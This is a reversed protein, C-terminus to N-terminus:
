NFEHDNFSKFMKYCKQNEKLIEADVVFGAKKFITFSAINEVKIYAIIKATKNQNLYAHTAKHLMEIGYSKGRFSKDISIGIIIEDQQKNIRVQGVPMNEENFFLYFFCGPDNLKSRFWVVHDNYKIEQQNFSNARVVGDNSWNFYLDVDEITAHRYYLKEEALEKFLNLLREPSKGDIMKKQNDLIKKLQDPQRFLEQIKLHIEESSTDNLNGLSMAVQNKKLGNLIEMQNAATYGTILIIGVACSELAITSAPCICADCTQLLTRLTIASIDTHKIISTTKIESITDDLQTINPNISGLMLHIEELQFPILVRIMKETINDVDSAGMSIFVKKIEKIDNRKQTTLFEKRLLVYKLGLCLRTYDAIEYKEASVDAAHNIVIDAVQKWSHLDDICILKCNKKKIQTQYWTTFSYGDLIILDSPHLHNLFHQCDEEFSSNFPLEILQAHEQILQKTHVSPHQIAFFIQFHNKLMDALALCRVVHGMGLHTGGDARIIIRKKM